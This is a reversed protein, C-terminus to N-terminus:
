KKKRKASKILVPAEPVDEYMGRSTTKVAKIKDVVAMGDVVKGFVTYGGPAESRRDLTSNDKVNIFFQATASDPDNTRAMAITGRLNKVDPKAENKVPPRTDKQKMEATFGGGQIMFGNIVRHFITGDYFGDDVYKLFNKVSEPAKDDFLELTITGLSTDIVVTPNATATMGGGKTKKKKKAKPETKADANKQPKADASADPKAAPTAEPATAPSAPPTKPTKADEAKTDAKDAGGDAALAGGPGVVIAMALIAAAAARLAKLMPDFTQEPKRMTPQSRKQTRENLM